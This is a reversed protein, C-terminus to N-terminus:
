RHCRGRCDGRRNALACRPPEIYILKDNADYEERSTLGTDWDYVARYSRWEKGKATKVSGTWEGMVTTGTRQSTDAALSASAAFAALAAIGLLALGSQKVNM